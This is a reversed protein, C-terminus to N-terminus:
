SGHGGSIRFGPRELAKRVQLMNEEPSIPSPYKLKIGEANENKVGTTKNNKVTILLFSLFCNVMQFLNMSGM